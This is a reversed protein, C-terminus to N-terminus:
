SEAGCAGRHQTSAAPISSMCPEHSLENRSAVKGRVLRLNKSFEIGDGEEEERATGASVAAEHCGPPLARLAGVTLGPAAPYGRHPHRPRRRRGPVPQPVSGWSAPTARPGPLSILSGSAQAVTM